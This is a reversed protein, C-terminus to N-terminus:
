SGHSHVTEDTVCPLRELCLINVPTVVANIHERFALEQNPITKPCFFPLFFVQFNCGAQAKRTGNLVLIKYNTETKRGQLSAVEQGNTCVYGGQNIKNDIFNYDM